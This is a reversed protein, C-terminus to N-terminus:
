NYRWTMHCVFTDPSSFLLLFTSDDGSNSCQKIQFNKVGRWGTTRYHLREGGKGAVWGRISSGHETQVVLVISDVVLNVFGHFTVISFKVVFSEFCLAFSPNM